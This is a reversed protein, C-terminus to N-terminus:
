EGVMLEKNHVGMIQESMCERVFDEGM